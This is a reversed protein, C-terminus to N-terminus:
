VVVAVVDPELVAADVTVLVSVDEMELVADDVMVEDAELLRVVVAVVVMTVLVVAVVVCVVLADVEPVDVAVVWAFPRNLQEPPPPGM